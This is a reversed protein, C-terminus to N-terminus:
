DPFCLFSFVRCSKLSLIATKVQTQFESVSILLAVVRLLVHKKLVRWSANLKLWWRGCPETTVLSQSGRCRCTGSVIPEVASGRVVSLPLLLIVVPQLSPSINSNRQSVLLLALHVLRRPLQCIVEVPLFVFLCAFLFLVFFLCYCCCCFGLLLVLSAPYVVLIDIFTLLM